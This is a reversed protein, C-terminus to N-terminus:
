SMVQVKGKTIRELVEPRSEFIHVTADVVDPAFQSGRHRIIEEIADKLPRGESYSRKSTMADLADSVGIIAASLPLVDISYHEPYGKLDYRKHHLMVGDMIEKSFGIPQLIRQGIEPHEKIKDSEYVDLRGNKKLIRDNIGIKGIDHLMGAIQIEELGESDMGLEQAICTAIESVRNSHGETYADKAEIATVLVRITALFEERQQAFLQAKKIALMSQIALTSLIMIENQPLKDRLLITIIGTRESSSVLPLVAVSKTQERLIRMEEYNDFHCESVEDMYVMKKEDLVKFRIDETQREIFPRMQQDDESKVKVLELRGDETLMRIGCLSVDYLECIKEIILDFLDSLNNETALVRTIDRIDELAQNRRSLKQTLLWTESVPRSIGQIGKFVNGSMIRVTNTLFFEVEDESNKKFWSQVGNLNSSQMNELLLNVDEENSHNDLLVEFPKGIMEESSIGLREEFAKNLFQIKYHEDVLWVLDKMNEILVRYKEKSYELRRNMVDMEANNSELSQNIMVLEDQKKMMEMSQNMSVKYNHESDSVVQNIGEVIQKFIGSHWVPIRLANSGKIMRETYKRINYLPKYMHDSYILSMVVSLIALITMVLGYKVRTAAILGKEDDQQYAFGLNMRGQLVDNIKLIGKENEVANQQSAKMMGRFLTIFQRSEDQMMLIEGNWFLYLADVRKTEYTALEDVLYATDIYVSASVLIKRDTLWNVVLMYAANKRNKDQVWLTQIGPGIQYESLDLLSLKGYKDKVAVVNPKTAIDIHPTLKEFDRSKIKELYRSASNSAHAEFYSLTNVIAYLDRETSVLSEDLIQTQIQFQNMYDELKQDIRDQLVIKFSSMGILAIFVLSIIVHYIKLRHRFTMSYRM